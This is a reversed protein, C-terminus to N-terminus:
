DVITVETGVPVIIYLEEVEPNAMRVCGQTVQKGLSQPDITGHIGYDTLRDFGMWRTGLINEPSGAPIPSSSGKKFWPPNMLKNAIKFTGTPTSNNKGTSVIYTKMIEDDCKLILTNQSKDVLISFPANWVKIKRGPVIRDGSLNNSKMILEPTTKFERAIRALTDGPKIEYSVSKPTVTASFLLEMNLEEAKKQWESVQASNLYEGILKQYAEKAALLEGKEELQKAQNILAAAEGVAPLRSGLTINAKKLGIVLVVALVIGIAALLIVFKKNM